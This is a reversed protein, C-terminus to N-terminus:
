LGLLYKNAFDLSKFVAKVKGTKLCYIYYVNEEIKLVKLNKKM